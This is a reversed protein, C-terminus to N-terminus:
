YEVPPDGHIRRERVLSTWLYLAYGLFSLTALPVKREESIHHCAFLQEVNMKGLRISRLMIKEMSIHSALTLRKLGEIMKEEKPSINLIHVIAGEIITTLNKM